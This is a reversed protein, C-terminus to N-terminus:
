WCGAYEVDTVWWTRGDDWSEYYVWYYPTCYYYYGGGGGEGGRGGGGGVPLQPTPYVTDKLKKKDCCTPETYRDYSQNFTSKDSADYSVGAMVSEGEACDVCDGYGAPHGIEHSIVELVADYSTIIKDISIEAFTTNGNANRGLDSVEARASQGSIPNGGADRLPIDNVSKITIGTGAPPATTARTYTVNSGNEGSANTWGNFADDIAKIADPDTISPDIYYQVTSGQEWGKKDVPPNNYSNCVTTATCPDAPKQGYTVALCLFVICFGFLLKHPIM